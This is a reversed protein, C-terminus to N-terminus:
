MAKTCRLNSPLTSEDISIAGTRVPLPVSAASYLRLLQHYILPNYRPYGLHGSANLLSNQRVRAIGWWAEAKCRLRTVHLNRSIKAACVGLSIIATQPCQRDVAGVEDSWCLCSRLVRGAIKEKWKLTLIPTPVPWLHLDDSLTV